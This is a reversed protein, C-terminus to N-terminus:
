CLGRFTGGDNNIYQENMVTNQGCFLRKRRTARHRQVSIRAVIAAGYTSERSEPNIPGVVDSRDQRSQLGTKTWPITIGKLGDTCINPILLESGSPTPGSIIVDPERSYGDSIHSVM